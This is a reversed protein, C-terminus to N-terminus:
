FRVKRFGDTRNSGSGHILIPHFFVIDGPEMELYVLDKEKVDYDMIGHYMKNVGGSRDRICMESGVLCSAIEYATKQKFFFIKNIQFHFRSISNEKVGYKNVTRAAISRSAKSLYTKLPNIIFSIKTHYRLYLSNPHLKQSTICVSYIYNQTIQM